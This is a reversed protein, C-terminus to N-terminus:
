TYMGAVGPKAGVSKMEEEAAKRLDAMTIVQKDTSRIAARSAAKIVANRINGGVFSPFERALADTSVDKTPARKPIESAWLKARISTDPATFEIHFHIRRYFADDLEDRCNTTLIAIGSFNELHHLLLGTDQNAYRDSSSGGGAVRKAFIGEAEDFVLVADAARAEQFVAEINKGSDGVYKSV